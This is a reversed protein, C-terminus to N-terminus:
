DASARSTILKKRQLHALPGQDSEAELLYTNPVRIGSEKALQSYLYELRGYHNADDGEMLGDVASEAM